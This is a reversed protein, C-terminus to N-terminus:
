RVFGYQEHVDLILQRAIHIAETIRPLEIWEGTLYRLSMDKFHPALKEVLSKQLHHSSRFGRMIATTYAEALDHGLGRQEKETGGKERIFAKLALELAFGINVFCTAWAWSAPDDKHLLEVARLFAFAGGALRHGPTDKPRKPLIVNPM